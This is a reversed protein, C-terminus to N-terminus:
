QVPALHESVEVRYARFAPLLAVFASLAVVGLLVGAEFAYLGTGTVPVGTQRYVWPAAAILGAHALVIGATGGALGAAVAESVMLAFVTRRHAGLARLIALERRREKLSTYMAVFVSVAGIVVVLWSIALLLGNINGVVAFLGAIERVPLVAQATTGENVAYIFSEFFVPSKLKVAIATITTFDAPIITDTEETHHEHAPHEHEHDDAGEAEELLAEAEEQRHRYERYHADWVTRMTTYIGRDIATHTPALIGTVVVPRFDHQEGEEHMGHTMVVTSGTRLGTKAAVESGIVAEYETAFRRGNRVQISRGKRYEFGDFLRDTTGIVKYGQVNDGFVMPLLSGVRRDKEIRHLVDIPINGVPTGTHYMTNLVLQLPSGKAGVLIEYGTDKQSFTEEGAERLLLIGSVLATGAAISLATLVFTVRRQRVFRILLGMFTM